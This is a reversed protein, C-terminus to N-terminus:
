AQVGKWCHAQRKFCQGTIARPWSAFKKVSMKLLRIMSMCRPQLHVGPAPPPLFPPQQNLIRCALWSRSNMRMKAIMSVPAEKGTQLCTHLELRAITCTYMSYASGIVSICVSKAHLMEKNHQSATQLSVAPALMQM